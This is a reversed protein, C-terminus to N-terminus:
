EEGEGEPPGGPDQAAVSDLMSLRMQKHRRELFGYVSSHESGSLIMDVGRKAADIAMMEGIISVTNGQVAVRCGTLEEIMRRTRGKEGIVRGRVQRQRSEHHGTYDRIDIVALYMDDKFLAGASEPSFGRGVARVVEEVQLAKLPNTKPNEVIEVEGTKSDIQLRVHARREINAKFDGEPGILVGIRDAPIRVRRTM